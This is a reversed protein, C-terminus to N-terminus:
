AAFGMTMFYYPSQASPGNAIASYAWITNVTSGTPQLITHAIQGNYNYWGNVIVQVTFSTDKYAKLM